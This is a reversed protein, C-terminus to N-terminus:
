CAVTAIERGNGSQLRRTFEDALGRRPRRCQLARDAPGVPVPASRGRSHRVASAVHPALLLVHEPRDLLPGDAEHLQPEGVDEARGLGEGDGRGLELVGELLAHGEVARGDVAEAPDLLAVHQGPGIALVNWIRGQCGSSADRHGPDEAVDEVEVAGGELATGAVDQAAVEVPGPVLAEGEEGGRLDLVEVEGVGVGRLRGTVRSM